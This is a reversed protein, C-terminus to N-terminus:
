DGLALVDAGCSNPRKAVVMPMSVCTNAALYYRASARVQNPDRTSIVARRPSRRERQCASAETMLRVAKAKFEAGFAGRNM